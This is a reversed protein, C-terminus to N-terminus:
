VVSKRDVTNTMSSTRTSFGEDGGTYTAVDGEGTFMIDELRYKIEYTTSGEDDVGLYKRTEAVGTFRHMEPGTPTPEFSNSVGYLTVTTLAPAPSADVLRALLVLATFVYSSSM